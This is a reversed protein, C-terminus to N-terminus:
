LHPPFGSNSRLWVIHGNSYVIELGVIVGQANRDFIIRRSPEQLDFFVDASVRALQMPIRRGQQLSLVNDSIRVRSDGYRGVYDSLSKGSVPVSKAVLAELVLRAYGADEGRSGEGAIRRLAVIRARDLARRASVAIDPLVGRGDWNTGTVPNIPTGTPIFVAFGGGSPFEGGSNAAGASTEGVIVARKAAQLSYAFAEAASATRASILVFVPTEILPTRYPEQPQESQMGDRRHIVDYLNAGPASFASVLYAAMDLSGGVDDRLDVIVAGTDAVLQLAANAARLAPDSRDRWNVDAFTTLEIYGIAGPLVEVRQFGYATRRAVVEASVEPMVEAAHGRTGDDAGRAWTVRFHRDFPQLYQTIASALDRPASSGGFRASFDMQRLGSAISRARQADFYNNEILTAIRDVTDLTEACRGYPALLWLLAGILLPRRLTSRSM